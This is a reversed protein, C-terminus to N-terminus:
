IELCLSDSGYFLDAEEIQNYLKKRFYDQWILSEQSIIKHITSKESLDAKFFTPMSQIEKSFSYIV